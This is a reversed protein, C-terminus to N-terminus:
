RYNQNRSFKSSSSIKIDKDSDKRLVVREVLVVAAKGWKYNECNMNSIIRVKLEFNGIPINELTVVNTEKWMTIDEELYMIKNIFVQYYLRGTLKRNEYPSRIYVMCKNNDINNICLIADVYDGKKPASKDIYFKFRRPQKIAIYPVDENNNINGATFKVCDVKIGIEDFQKDYYDLLTENSNIKWFNLIPWKKNIIQKLIIGEKRVNSPVSLILEIAKRSNLLSYTEFAMDEERLVQSNRGGIINEIYLIDFINYNFINNIQIDDVGNQFINSIERDSTLLESYWTAMDEYIIENKFKYIEKDCSDCLELISSNLNVISKGSWNDIWYKILLGKNYSLTNKMLVKKFEQIGEKEVEKNEIFTHKLNMNYIIDKIQKRDHENYLYTYLNINDIKQKVLSLLAFQSYKLEFLVIVEKKSLILLEKDVMKEIECILEELSINEKEKRPWFRKVSFDNIMLYSNPTLRYVDNYETYIEPFYEANYNRFWKKREDNLVVDDSNEKILGCHSSIIDKGYFVSMTGTADCTLKVTGNISWLVVYRGSLYDLEELFLGESISLKRLLLEAILEFDSTELTYSLPNGLIAVYSKKLKKLIFNMNKDYGFNLNDVKEIRYHSTCKLKRNSIIFGRKYELNEYKNDVDKNKTFGQVTRVVSLIDPSKKRKKTIIQKLQQALDIYYEDIYHYPELGWRHNENAYFINEKDSIINIEKYKEKIYRYKKDLEKNQRQIENMRSRFFEIRGENSLYKNKYFCEHLIVKNIINKEKFYDLVKDCSNCWDEFRNKDIIADYILQNLNSNKYENSATGIVKDKLKVIDFREDIFDLIIYENEDFKLTLFESEFDKKICMKQFDSKLEINNIDISYKEGVLSQFTTRAYYREGNLDNDFNLIDRSVCSGLITIKEKM